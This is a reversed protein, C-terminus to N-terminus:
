ASLVGLRKLKGLWKAADSAKMDGTLGILTEHAPAIGVFGLINREPSKVSHAFKLSDWDYAQEENRWHMQKTHCNICQTTYLLEGRTQVPLPQAHSVVGHGVLALALLVMFPNSLTTM